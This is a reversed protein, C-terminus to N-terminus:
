NMSKYSSRISSTLRTGQGGQAVEGAAAQPGAAARTPVAGAVRVQQAPRSRASHWLVAAAALDPWAPGAGAPFAPHDSAHAPHGVVFGCLLTEIRTKIKFLSIECALSLWEYSNIHFKVTLIMSIYINWFVKYRGGGRLHIDGCFINKWIFILITACQIAIVFLSTVILMCFKIWM